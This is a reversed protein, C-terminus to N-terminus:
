KEKDTRKENSEQKGVGDSNPNSAVILDMIKTMSPNSMYRTGLTYQDKANFKGMLDFFVTCYENDPITYQKKAQPSIKQQRVVRGVLPAYAPVVQQSQGTLGVGRSLEDDLADIEVRELATMIINMQLLEFFSWAVTDMFMLVAAWDDYAAKKGDRQIRETKLYKRMYMTQLGTLQDLVVTRFRPYEKGYKEKYAKPIANKPDQDEKHLWDVITQLDEISNINILSPKSPMRRVSVPNGVCNLLLTPGLRPDLHSSAALTTKGSGPEGYFIAKVFPFKYNDLDDLNM